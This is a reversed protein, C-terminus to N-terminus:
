SDNRSRKRIMANASARPEQMQFVGWKRRPAMVTELILIPTHLPFDKPDRESNEAQDCVECKREPPRQGCRDGDTVRAPPEGVAAVPKLGNNADLAARWRMVIAQIDAARRAAANQEAFEELTFQNCSFVL